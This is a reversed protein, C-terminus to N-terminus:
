LTAKLEALLTKYSTEFIEKDWSYTVACMTAIRHVTELIMLDQYSPNLTWYIEKDFEAEVCLISGSYFLIDDENKLEVSIRTTKKPKYRNLLQVYRGSIKNQRIIFESEALPDHGNYYLTIDRFGYGM